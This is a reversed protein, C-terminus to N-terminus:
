KLVIMNKDGFHNKTEDDLEETTIVEGETIESNEEDFLCNVVQYDGNDLKRKIAVATLDKNQKLEEIRNPNKFWSYINKMFNVIKIFVKTMFDWAAEIAEFIFDIIDDM